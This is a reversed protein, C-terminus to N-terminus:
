MASRRLILACLVAMGAYLVLWVPTTSTLTVAPVIVSAIVLIVAVILAIVQGRSAPQDKRMTAFAGLLIAAIMVLLSSLTLTFTSEGRLFTIFAYILLVLALAMFAGGVRIQLPIM